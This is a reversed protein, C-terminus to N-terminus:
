WTNDFVDEDAPNLARNWSYQSVTSSMLKVSGDGLGVMMGARYPSQLLMPDCEFPRPAFQPLPLSPYNVM